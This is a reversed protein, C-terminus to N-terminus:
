ESKDEETRSKRAPYCVAIEGLGKIRARKNVIVAVTERDNETNLLRSSNQIKDRKHFSETCSNSHKVTLSLSRQKLTESGFHTWIAKAPGIRFCCGPFRHTRGQPLLPLCIQATKQQKGLCFASSKLIDFM